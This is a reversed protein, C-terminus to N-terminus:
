EFVIENSMEISETAKEKGSVILGKLGRGMWSFLM